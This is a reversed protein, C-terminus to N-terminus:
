SLRTAGLPVLLTGVDAATPPVRPCGWGRVWRGVSAGVRCIQGIRAFSTKGLGQQREVATEHFFFYIKDDDPDESEPVWFVAVFKPEPPLPTSGGTGWSAGSGQSGLVGIPTGPPHLGGGVWSCPLPLALTPVGLCSPDTPPLPVGWFVGWLYCLASHPWAQLVRQGSAELSCRHRVPTGTGWQGGVGWCQGNLWRSDHQETRISPRRGLSRFITFDRGM